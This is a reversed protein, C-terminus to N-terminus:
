SFDDKIEDAFRGVREFNGYLTINTGYKNIITKDIDTVIDSNFDQALYWGCFKFGYCDFDNPLQLKNEKSIDYTLNVQNIFPTNLLGPVQEYLIPINKSSYFYAPLNDKSYIFFKATDIISAYPSAFFDAGEKNILNGENDIHVYGEDIRFHYFFTRLFYFFDVLKDNRLCYGLFTNKEKQEIFDSGERMYLFYPSYVKGVLPLGTGDNYNWEKCIRLADDLTYVGYSNMRPIADPYENIIFNYLSSFFDNFLDDKSNYIYNPLVYNITININSNTSISESIINPAKTTNKSINCSTSILILCCLIINSIVRIKSKKSKKCLKKLMYTNYCLYKSWM